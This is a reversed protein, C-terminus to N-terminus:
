NGAPMVGCELRSEQGFFLRHHPFDRRHLVESSVQVQGAPGPLRLGLAYSGKQPSDLAADGQSSAHVERRYGQQPSM